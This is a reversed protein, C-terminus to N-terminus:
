TPNMKLKQADEFIQENSCREPKDFYTDTISQLEM